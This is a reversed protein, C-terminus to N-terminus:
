SDQIHAVECIDYFILVFSTMYCNFYWHCIILNMVYVYNGFSLYVSGCKSTLPFFFHLWEGVQAITINQSDLRFGFELM